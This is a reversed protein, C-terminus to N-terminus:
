GGLQQKRGDLFLDYKMLIEERELAQATERYMYSVSAYNALDSQRLIAISTRVDAGEDDQIKPKRTCRGM